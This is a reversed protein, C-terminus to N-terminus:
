SSKQKDNVFVIESPPTRKGDTSRGMHTLYFGTEPDLMLPEGQQFSTTKDNGETSTGTHTLPWSTKEM